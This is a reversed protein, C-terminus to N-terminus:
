DLSIRTRLLGISSLVEKLFEQHEIAKQLDKVTFYGVSNRFDERLSSIEGQFKELERETSVIIVKQITPDAKCRQLNLIVSDRSGSKHVEFAYAVAGLNAIRSRWIVDIRCGKTVHFEKKVEFGLGDGLQLIQEITTDHDFQEVPETPEEYVKAAYYLLFDLEFLDAIEPYSKNAQSFTTQVLKCFEEYQSGRIQSSKPLLNQDIGLKILGTKARRSWIPYKLHDHHALIESISTAGMMKIKKMKNFRSALPKDGYLLDRFAEKIKPLGSELMQELLWDKNTWGSFSWLIHILDRLVGQDIKGVKEKSFNMKFFHDKSARGTVWAKGQETELFKRFKPMVKNLLKQNIESM